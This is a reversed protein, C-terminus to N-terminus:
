PGDPSLPSDIRTGDPLRGTVEVPRGRPATIALLRGGVTSRVRATVELRTVTRSAAALLYTTGSPARWETHALVNRGSSSCQATDRGRGVARARTGGPGVFLYEVDGTGRWTDARACVWRATGSREPLAQTAFVWHDVGRVGKGRLGTLRCASAAWDRVDAAGTPARPPRQRVAPRTTPLSTLRAPVLGGLDALLFARDEAIRPSSRVQVVPVGRCPGDGAAVAVPETVGDGDRILAHPRVAPARLDRVAADTIWPALLLRVTRPSRGVVVAATTVDAGETLAAALEPTGGHPPESYRVTHTGDQLVVVARGDVDDAFLLRASTGPGRAPAGPEASRRGRWGPDTWARLARALLGTDGIRGGRAPWAALGPRTVHTWADARARRLHEAHTGAAPRPAESPRGADSPLTLLLAGTAALLALAATVARPRRGRRIPGPPSAPPPSPISVPPAYAARAGAPEADAVATTRAASHGSLPSRRKPM